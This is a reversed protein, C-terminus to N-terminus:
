AASSRKPRYAALATAPEEEDSSSKLAQPLTTGAGVDSHRDQGGILAGLRNVFGDMQRAQDRLEQSTLVTREADSGNQRVLNRADLVSRNIRDLENAQEGSAAAIERIIEGTKATTATVQSFADGTRGVEKLGQDIKKVTTEILVATNRAAEAARLALNRVEDAVVAFGAGAEGARAAEVAANLALLNTQFSIEDITKIIKQTEQSSASIQEMAKQLDDMSRNADDVVKSTESMLANAEGAQDANKKAVLATRDVATTAEGLFQALEAVGGALSDGSALVERAARGLEGGAANLGQIVKRIPKILFARMQLFLAALLGFAVITSKIGVIMLSRNLEKQIFVPTFYAKISGLKKNGKQVEQEKEIFSGAIDDQSEVIGWDDGRRFSAFVTKGDTGKVSVAFVMKEAMELRVLEQTLQKDMNWLPERLSVALRSVSATMASEFGQQLNSKLTLYDYLASGSALIVSTLILIWFVANLKQPAAENKMDVKGYM